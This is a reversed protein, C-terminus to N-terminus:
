GLFFSVALEEVGEEFAAASGGERVEDGFVWYLPGGDVFFGDESEGEGDDFSDEAVEESCVVRYDEARIGGGCRVAVASVNM